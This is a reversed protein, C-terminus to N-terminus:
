GLLGPARLSAFTGYGLNGALPTLGSQFSSPSGLSEVPCPPQPGPISPQFSSRFETKEPPFHTSAERIPMLHAPLEPIMSLLWLPSNVHSWPFETLSLLSLSAWFLTPQFPFSSTDLATVHFVPGPTPHDALSSPQSLETSSWPCPLFHSTCSPQPWPLPMSGRFSCITRATPSSTGM